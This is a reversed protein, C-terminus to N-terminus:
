KKVTFPFEVVPTKTGDQATAQVYLTHEGPQLKSVPIPMTAVGALETDLAPSDLSYAFTYLEAGQAGVVGVVFLGPITNTSFDIPQQQFTVAIPDVRFQKSSIESPKGTADIYRVYVTHEGVAIPMPGILTNVAAGGATTGADTQPDPDDISSLLKQANFAEPFVVLFRVGNHFFETQIDMSSFATTSQAYAALMKRSQELHTDALRKDIYYRSFAQQKELDLLTNYAESQRKLLDSTVNASLARDYEQGLEYFVPGYQPARAALAELRPLREQPTDLLRALMLDLTLSDPRATLMDGIMQRTRAIGETTKLLATYELFPDVYDLKFAFYGEYAKIANLTDGRLQYQRANSYWDQPTAPQAVLAQSGQLQAFSAQIDAFGQAQATAMVVVETATQGTTERIAEVDEQIGLLQAQVQAIPEINEALYGREPASALVLSWGGFIVAAGALILLLGALKTDWAYHGQARSVATFRVLVVIAGLLSVLAVWPAFDGLPTLVDGVFGGITGIISLPGAANIAAKRLTGM